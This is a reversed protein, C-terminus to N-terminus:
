AADSVYHIEGEVKGFSLRTGPALRVSRGPEIETVAGLSNRTVWKVTSLNMLGWTNPEAPHKTVEAVPVSFDYLRQDDTHHPWLRADHNLMVFRKGVRLFLPPEIPQPCSWCARRNDAGAKEAENADFFNEAGCAPCYVISDRLQVLAERWESEKVRASTDSLGRTFSRIFLRKLATPYLPWYSLMNDHIGRLPRNSADDPDAVYVPRTGYLEVQATRDLCRYQTELKGELPHHMFLMAHLLVALSYQDTATSPFAEGRVIEPAMFRLTGGIDNHAQGNIGVNDLDCILVGGSTPQFFLNNFSIDRYALGRAHLQLFGDALNYGATVISRFSPDVRRKALDNGTCFTEPRLPMLYGFGPVGDAEALDLPWLFLDSPPGIRVLIELARRQQPTAAEPFYWKLALDATGLTVQYVEGQSGSGLLKGVECPLGAFCTQVSQGPILINAM